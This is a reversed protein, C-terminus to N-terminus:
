AVEDEDPLDVVAGKFIVKLAEINAESKRADSQAVRKALEYMQDPNFSPVKDNLILFIVTIIVACRKNGNGITHDKAIMYFMVAARHYLFWYKYKGGFCIFPAHLASDLANISRQTLPGIPESSPLFEPLMEIAWLAEDLTVRRM